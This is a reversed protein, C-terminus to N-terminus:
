RKFFDFFSRSSSIALESRQSESQSAIDRVLDANEYDDDYSLKLLPELRSAITSADLSYGLNKVLVAIEVPLAWIALSDFISFTDHSSVFKALKTRYNWCDILSEEEPNALFRSYVGESFLHKKPESPQGCLHMLLACYDSDRPM